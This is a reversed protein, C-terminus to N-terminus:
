AARDGARKTAVDRMAELSKELWRTFDRRGAVADFVRFRVTKPEMGAEATVFTGDQAGTLEIEVFGGTNVCKIHFREPDDFANIRFQREAKGMPVKMVERYECGEAIEASDVEIVDPWWDPHHEVDAILQWVVERPADIFTQQRCRSL